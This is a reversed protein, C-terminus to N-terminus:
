FIREGWKHTLKQSVQMVGPHTATVKPSSPNSERELHFASSEHSACPSAHNNAAPWQAFFDAQCSGRNLNQLSFMNKWYTILKRKQQNAYFSCQNAYFRVNKAPEKKSLSISWLLIELHYEDCFFISQGEHFGIHGITFCIWTWPETKNGEQSGFSSEM